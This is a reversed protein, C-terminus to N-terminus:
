TPLTGERGERVEGQQEKSWAPHLTPTHCLDLTAHVDAPRPSASVPQLCLGLLGQPPLLATGAALTEVLAGPTAESRCAGVRWLGEPCQEQPNVSVPYCPPRHSWCLGSPRLSLKRSPLAGALGCLERDSGPKAPQTVKVLANINQVEAKKDKLRAPLLRLAKPMTGPM